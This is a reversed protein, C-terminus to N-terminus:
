SIYQRKKKRGLSFYMVHDHLGSISVSKPLTRSVKTIPDVDVQDSWIGSMTLCSKEEDM